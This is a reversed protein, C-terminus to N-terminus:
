NNFAIAFIYKKKFHIYGQEAYQRFFYKFYVLSKCTDKQM